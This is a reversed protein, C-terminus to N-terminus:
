ADSAGAKCLPKIEPTAGQWGDESGTVQAHWRRRIVDAYRPDLEVALCRRGTKECAILTSGSGAFGDYIGGGGKSSNLILYEMMAVPKMTPHDANRSPKDFRLLTSQKRDSYWAHRRGPVWGYLCPEHQWQYDQRGLTIVSKAWVLVQKLELGADIVANRFALGESDAHWIYFSAGPRMVGRAARFAQSLFARLGEGTHGDNQITLADKTKGVYSIGYPPDTLLLDVELGAALAAVAAADTSDGVLLRHGGLEYIAGPRSEAHDPPEPAEADNSGDDLAGLLRAIEDAEFGTDLLDVDMAQLAALEAGLLENNWEANEGTRNDALRYARVQKETLDTAVHVPVREMGLAQAALLRTHGVILVGRKDVVLPQRFGYKKLSAKVGKVAGANNRPNSEYPKVRAIPWMEIKM